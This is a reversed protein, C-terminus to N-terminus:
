NPRITPAGPPRMRHESAHVNTRDDEFILDLVQHFNQTEHTKRPLRARVRKPPGRDGDGLTASISLFDRLTEHTTPATTPATSWWWPSPSSASAPRRM